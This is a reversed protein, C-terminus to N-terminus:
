WLDPDLKSAAKESGTKDLPTTPAPVTLFPRPDLKSLAREPGVRDLPIHTTSPGTKDLPIHTSNRHPKEPAPELPCPDLKTAAM